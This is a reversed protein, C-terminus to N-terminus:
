HGKHPPRRKQKFNLFVREILVWLAALGVIFVAVDLSSQVRIGSIALLAFASLSFALARFGTLLSTKMRGGGFIILLTQRHLSRSALGCKALPGCRSKRRAGQHCLGRIDFASTDDIPLNIEEYM